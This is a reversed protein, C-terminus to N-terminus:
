VASGFDATIEVSDAVAIRVDRLQVEGLPLSMLSFSQGELKSLHPDLFNCAITGITGDSKCKLNSVKAVFDDDIHVQGSIDIRARFLLKRAYIQVDASISRPGRARLAVRTQDITIGNKRAERRALEAIANELDLQAASIVVHGTRLKHVLLLAEGNEDRGEHFVLDRAELQFNIPAGHILIKRATFSLLAAECAPKTEGASKPPAPLQSYVEAGDFNIDIKDLYPFVRAGITVLPQEKRVYRRLAQDMAEALDATSSPFKDRHLPIM